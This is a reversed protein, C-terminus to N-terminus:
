IRVFTLNDATNGKIPLVTQYADDALSLIDVESDPPKDYEDDLGAPGATNLEPEEGALMPSPTDSPEQLTM